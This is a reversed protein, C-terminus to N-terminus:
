IIIYQTLITVEVADQLGAAFQYIREGRPTGEPRLVAGVEGGLADRRWERPGVEHEVAAGKSVELFEAVPDFIPVGDQM